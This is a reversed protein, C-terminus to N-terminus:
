HSDPIRALPAIVGEGTQARPHLVRWTELSSAVRAANAKTLFMLLYTEGFHSSGPRKVLVRSTTETGVRVQSVLDFPIETRASTLLARFSASYPDRVRAVIGTDRVVIHTPLRGLLRLWLLLLFFPLGLLGLEISSSLPIGTLAGVGVGIGEIVVLSPVIYVVLQAVLVRNPLNEEM